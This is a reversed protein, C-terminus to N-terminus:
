STVFPNKWPLTPVNLSSSCQSHVVPGPASSVVPASTKWSTGRSKRIGCSRCKQKLKPIWAGCVNCLWGITKGNTMLAATRLVKGGRTATTRRVMPHAGGNPCSHRSCLRKRLHLQWFHKCLVAVSCLGLGGDGSRKEPDISRDPPASSAFHGRARTSCAIRARMPMNRDERGFRLRYNLNQLYTQRHQLRTRRLGSSHLNSVADGAM